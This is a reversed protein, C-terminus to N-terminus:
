QLRADPRAAGRALAAGGTLMREDRLLLEALAAREDKPLARAADLETKLGDLDKALEDFTFPGAGTLHALINKELATQRLRLGIAAPHTFVVAEDKTPAPMARNLNRAKAANTGPAGKPTFSWTDELTRRIADFNVGVSGAAAGYRRNLNDFIGDAEAPASAARDLLGLLADIQYLPDTASAPHGAANASAVAKSVESDLTAGGGTLRLSRAIVSASRELRETLIKKDRPALGASDIRDKLAKRQADLAEFTSPEEGKLHRILAKELAAVAVAMREGAPTSLAGSVPPMTLEPVARGEGAAAFSSAACAFACAALLPARLSRTRM